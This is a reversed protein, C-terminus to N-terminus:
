AAEERERYCWFDKPKSDGLAARERMKAEDAPKWVEGLEKWASDPSKVCEHVGTFSCTEIRRHPTRCITRQQEWGSDRPFIITWLVQRGDKARAEELERREALRYTETWLKDAQDFLGQLGTDKKAAKELSLRLKLLRYSLKHLAKANM